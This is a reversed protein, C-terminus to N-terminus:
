ANWSPESGHAVLIRPRGGGLPVSEVVGQNPANLFGGGDVLARGGARSLGAGVLDAGLSTSVGSSLTLIWASSTDQGEYEALLTSGADSFSIPVLGERLPPIALRTLRRAASGDSAMLWIQYAPEADARLRERDFAIGPQGWVPNLSRGDHTIQAAQSGDADIVHVDVRARLAASRASAYAIRWNDPAFSAGYIQGRAIIRSALTSTDIVALGSSSASAPNTSTLVVAIYRSDASFATAVATADTHEFYRRPAGGSASYLLLGTPDSAAVLSGNPALLPQSGPGLRHAGTGNATALWVSPASGASGTVYAVL